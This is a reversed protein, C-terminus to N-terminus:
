FAYRLIAALSAGGPIDARRVGLVRAGSTFARGAIEDVVGYSVACPGDQLVISGDEGVTGPIVEDIDVLLTVVAGFTAARAAQAIDTTTRGAKSRVEFLTHLAELETRHLGDLIERAAAALEADSTTESNGGISQRRPTPVHERLPLDVGAAAPGGPDAPDGAWRAARATGSRGATRVPAPAGESRGIGASAREACRGLISAKGVASAADRPLDAVRVDVAPMDGSVEVVRVAGQTLALVFASQPVTVARLLPKLHFRDGTEVLPHLANPM